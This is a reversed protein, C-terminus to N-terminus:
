SPSSNSAVASQHKSAILQALLLDQTTTVKMNSPDGWVVRVPHFCEVLSADDTAEGSYGTTGDLGHAQWLLDFLFVQPTQVLVIATRDLSETVKGDVGIRKLSDVAPVAATVAGFEAAATICREVLPASVLCRAADHILVLLNATNDGRKRKIDTLGLAVSEQRSAGGALVTVHTSVVEEAVQRLSTPPALVYLHSIARVAQLTQVTQKVITASGFPALAKPVKLGLREGSGAAPVLAVVDM